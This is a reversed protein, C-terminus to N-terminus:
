DKTRIEMFMIATIEGDEMKFSNRRHKILESLSLIPNHFFRM